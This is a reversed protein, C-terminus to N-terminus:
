RILSIERTKEDVFIFSLERHSRPLSKRFKDGWEILVLNESDRAIEAFRLAELEKKHRLRYADIHIFRSFGTEARAPKSVEYIKEIVFTPSTVEEKIGLARALAKAFTTKGSGLNGSCVLVVAEHHSREGSIIELVERATREIDKQNKTRRRKM